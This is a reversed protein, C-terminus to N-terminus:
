APFKAYIVTDGLRGDPDIENNHLVAERVFGLREPIKWSRENALAARIEVRRAGLRGLAYATIAGVAETMYGRGSRRTDLWYGIEFSPIDPNRPHLGTCGVFDGAILDFALFRYERLPDDSELLGSINDRTQEVSPIERCWPLWPSLQGFSARIAANVTAADSPQPPRLALRATLLTPQAVRM